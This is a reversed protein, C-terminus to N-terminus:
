THKKNDIKDNIQKIETKLQVALNNVQRRLQSVDEQLLQVENIDEYGKGTATPKIYSTGPEAVMPIDENNFMKGQGNVLWNLNVKPFREIIQALKSSGIETDNRTARLIVGPTIGTDKEFSNISSFGLSEVLEKLRESFKLM